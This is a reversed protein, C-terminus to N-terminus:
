SRVLHHISAVNKHRAVFREKVGIFHGGAGGAQDGFFRWRRLRRAVRTVNRIEDAIKRLEGSISDRLAIEFETRQDPM